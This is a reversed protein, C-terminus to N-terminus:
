AATTIATWTTGGDTNIYARTSTSSGDSRLYLSGKAASVSPAGSGVYVGFGATSSLTVSVATDGGAPIATGSKLRLNGTSSVDGIMSWGGSANLQGQNALTAHTAGFLAIHGGGGGANGGALRLFNTDITRYVESGVVLDGALKSARTGEYHIFWNGTFTSDWMAIAANNTGATQDYCSLNWTRTAAAGAGFPGFAGVAFAALKGVTYSGAALGIGSEFGCVFGNVGDVNANAQHAAYYGVQHNATLPNANLGAAVLVHSYRDGAFAAVGNSDGTVSLSGDLTPSAKFYKINEVVNQNWESATVVYGDSRTTPAVYAM